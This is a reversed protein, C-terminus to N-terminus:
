ILVMFICFRKEKKSVAGNWEGKFVEGSAGRGISHNYDVEVEISTLVYSDILADTGSKGHKPGLLKAANKFFVTEPQNYQTQHLNKM